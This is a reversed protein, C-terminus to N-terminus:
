RRRKGYRVSAALAMAVVALYGSLSLSDDDDKEPDTTPDLVEVTTTLTISASTEGDKTMATIDLALNNGRVASGPITVKVIVQGSTGPHLNLTEPELTVVWQTSSPSLAITDHGNGSNTVVLIYNLTAGPLGSLANRSTRIEVGHIQSMKITALAYYPFQGALATIPIDIDRTSSATMEITREMNPGLTFSDVKFTVPEDSSLRITDSKEALNKIRLLFTVEEGPDATKTSDQLTFLISHDIVKVTVTTSHTAGDSDRVTLTIDYRGTELAKDMSRGTGLREGNAEWIYSVLTGDSDSSDSADFRIVEDSFFVAGETPDSIVATPRENVRITVSISDEKKGNSVTLSVTHEGTGLVRSFKPQTSVQQEDISWSYNLPDGEPDDSNSGDFDIPIGDTYVAGNRPETIRATPTQHEIITITITSQGSGDLDDSVILRVQHDGLGLSGDKEQDHTFSPQDSMLNGDFYWEFTIPDGDPDSSERGDFTITDWERFTQLHEPSSIRAVPPRNEPIEVTIAIELASSRGNGDDVTLNVTYEGESLKRSFTSETSVLTGDIRWEFGLDDDDPDSSTSADFQIDENTFYTEGDEPSRMRAVPEANVRISVSTSDVGGRGDDVQLAISYQGKTLTASFRDTTGFVHGDRTWSYTLIDDDPDFSSRGDFLIEANDQYVRGDVPSDMIAVPPSNPTGESIVTINRIDTATANDDDTVRLVATYNGERAYAHTTKGDETSVYDFVGDNEFDWEWLAIVGDRDQGTGDFEISENATVTRDSGAGATPPRNRVTITIDATDMSEADMDDRVSLSVTYEGMKRYEHETTPDTQWGTTTGDGLDFHYQRVSGDRDTSDSGDILVKEYTLVDTTDATVDPIPRYNITTSFVRENNSPDKDGPSVNKVTVRFTREGGRAAFYGSPVTRLANAPISRHVTAIVEGDTEDYFEIDAEADRGNLERIRARLEIQDGESADTPDIEISTVSLDPLGLALNVAAYADVHGWGWHTDYKPHEPSINNNGRKEASLRLIDRVETPTLDPKAELMLAVIGAVQPTAMSTGDLAVYANWTDKLPAMIATGPAAVDPKLAGDGRPGYNSFSAFSDDDRIVTNRDNSASVAIVGNASAPTSVRRSADNGMAAILILGESVATNATQSIADDGNSDPGGLSMSVIQIGNNEDGNNEWDTDKNDICWEIAPIIFGGVGADTLTKVDVLRAGPAVGANTGESGGTGLATGAVHTGHGTPGNDRPNVASGGVGLDWGGIFKPDITFLDDDMDDLSEHSQDNVGTDLIAINVGRGIIDFEEWVDRYKVGDEAENTPRAKIAKVSTDLLPRFDPNLEVMRVGRVFRLINIQNNTADRVLLFPNYRARYWVELGLSEINRVDRDTPMDAFVIIISHLENDSEEILDDIGNGNLDRSFEMWDPKPDLISPDFEGTGANAPILPIFLMLAVILCASTIRPM